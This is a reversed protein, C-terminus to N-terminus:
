YWPLSTRELYLAGEYHVMPDDAPSYVLPALYDIPARQRHSRRLVQAQYDRAGTPLLVATIRITAREGPGLAGVSWLGGGRCFRASDAAIFGYGAPLPASV